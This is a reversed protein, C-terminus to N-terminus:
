YPLSTILDELAVTGKIDAEFEEILNEAYPQDWSFGLTWMRQILIKSSVIILTLCGIPDFIKTIESFLRRKFM